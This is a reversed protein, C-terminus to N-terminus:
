DLSVEYIETAPFFFRSERLANEASDAGHVANRQLSEAFEKRITEPAAEQPNTAGILKRFAEVANGEKHELVMVVIPGSAMFRTLSEFFPKEKHVKYFSEAQQQTLQTKKLARIRFNAACIKELIAGTQNKSEACPKIMSFTITDM